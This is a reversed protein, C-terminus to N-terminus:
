FKWLGPKLNYQMMIYALVKMEEESETTLVPDLSHETNIVDLKTSAILQGKNMVTFQTAELVSGHARTEGLQLLTM